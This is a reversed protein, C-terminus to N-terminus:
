ISFSTSKPSWFHLEGTLSALDGITTDSEVIPNRRTTENFGIFDWSRTTHPQFTTSPFISVVEEHGAYALEYFFDFDM